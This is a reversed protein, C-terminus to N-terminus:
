LCCFFFLSLLRGNKTRSLLQQLFLHPGLLIRRILRIPDEMKAAAVHFVVTVQERRAEQVM